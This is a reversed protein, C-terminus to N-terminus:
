AQGAPEWPKLRPLLRPVHRCYVRYEEGFREVLSPEELLPIYITNIGLVILARALHPRSILVGAEGFLVMVGGSIM